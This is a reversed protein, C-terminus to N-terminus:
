LSKPYAGLVRSNIEGLSNMFEERVQQSYKNFKNMDEFLQWTDNKVTGLIKLLRQYGLTEIEQPKLDMDIMARGIFHTLTLSYAIQRDHEEPSMEIVILGKEELYKKICTLRKDNTRVPCIVIKRDKLTRGASDPGFLPHTGIIEIDEQLYKKMLNCPIEKVSCVDLILSDKRIYDKIEMLVDELFSIPMSLLIVDKCCAEKLSATAVGLKMADFTKDSKDYVYVQFDEKLYKAALQGFRGFGIIGATKM